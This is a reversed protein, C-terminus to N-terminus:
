WTKLRSAKELRHELGSFEQIYTKVKEFDLHLLDCALLAAMGNGVNHGGRLNHLVSIPVLHKDAKNQSVVRNQERTFAGSALPRVRSYGLYNRKYDNSRLQKLILDDDYNYIFYQSSSQYQTINM